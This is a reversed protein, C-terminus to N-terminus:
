GRIFWRLQTVWVVLLVIEGEWWFTRHPALWIFAGCFPTFLLAPLLFLKQQATLKM